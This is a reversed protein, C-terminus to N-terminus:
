HTIAFAPADPPIFPSLPVSPVGPRVPGCPSLPSCAVILLLASLRTIVPESVVCSNFASDFKVKSPM